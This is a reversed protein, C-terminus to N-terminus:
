SHCPVLHHWAFRARRACLASQALGECGDLGARLDAINLLASKSNNVCFICPFASLSPSLPPEYTLNCILIFLYGNLMDLDISKLAVM